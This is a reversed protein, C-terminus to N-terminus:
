FIVGAGVEAFLGSGPVEKKGPKGYLRLNCNFQYGQKFYLYKEVERGSPTHDENSLPIFWLYTQEQVLVRQTDITTGIMDPGPNQYPRKSHRVAGLQISLRKRNYWEYNLGFDVKMSGKDFGFPVHVAFRHQYEKSPKTAQAYGYQVTGIAILFGIVLSFLNSTM